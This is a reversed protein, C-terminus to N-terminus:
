SKLRLNDITLGAELFYTALYFELPTLRRDADLVEIMLQRLLETSEESEGILYDSCDSHWADASMVVPPYDADTVCLSDILQDTEREKIIDIREQSGM